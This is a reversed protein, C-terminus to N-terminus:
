RGRRGIEDSGGAIAAEVRRGVQALDVMKDAADEMKGLLKRIDKDKERSAQNAARFEALAAKTDAYISKLVNLSAQFQRGREVGHTKPDFPEEAIRAANRENRKIREMARRARKDDEAQADLRENLKPQQRRIKLEQANRARSNSNDLIDEIEEMSGLKPGNPSKPDFERKLIDFLYRLQRGGKTRLSKIDIGADSFGSQQILKDAQRLHALLSREAMARNRGSQIQIIDREIATPLRELQRRAYGIREEPSKERRAPRALRPAGAAVAPDGPVVVDGPAGAAPAPGVAVPVGAPGAPGANKLQKKIAERRQDNEILRKATIKEREEAILRAREGPVVREGSAVRRRIEADARLASERRISLDFDGRVSRDSRDLQRLEENLQAKRRPPIPEGKNAAAQGAEIKAKLADIAKGTRAFAVTGHDLFRAIGEEDLDFMKALKPSISVIGSALGAAISKGLMEGFDLLISTAVDLGSKLLDGINGGGRLFEVLGEAAAKIERFTDRIHESKGAMEVFTDVANQAASKIGNWTFVLERGSIGSKNMAVRMEDIAQRITEAKQAAPGLSDFAGTGRLSDFTRKVGDMGDILIGYDDLFLTSGRSLGTIVTDLAQGADRGTAMARKGVFEVAVAIDDLAMKAALGRNAIQMAETIGLIGNSADVLKQAMRDARSGVTNTLGEFTKRVVELRGAREVFSDVRQIAPRLGLNIDRLFGLTGGGLRFALSFPKSAARVLRAIGASASRIAGQTGDKATIELAFNLNAM